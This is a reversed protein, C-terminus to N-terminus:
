GNGDLGHRVGVVLVDGVRLHTYRFQGNELRKLDLFPQGAQRVHFLDEPKVILKIQGRGKVQEVLFNDLTEIFVAHGEVVYGHIFIGLGGVHETLKLLKGARFPSDAALQYLHGVHM